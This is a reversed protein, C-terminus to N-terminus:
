YGVSIKFTLIEGLIKYWILKKLVLRSNSKSPLSINAPIFLYVVKLESCGLNFRTMSFQIEAADRTFTGM